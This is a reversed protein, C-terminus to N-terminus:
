TSDGATVTPSHCGAAHRTTGGEARPHRSCISSVAIFPSPRRTTVNERNPRSAAGIWIQNAYPSDGATAKTADRHSAHRTTGGEARPHRSRLSVALVSLSPTHNHRAHHQQQHHPTTTTPTTHPAVTPSATQPPTNNNNTTRHRQQNHPTTTLPTTHHQSTQSTTSTHHSPTSPTTTDHRQPTPTNRHTVVIYDDQKCCTVVM